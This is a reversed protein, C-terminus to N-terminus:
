ERERGNSLALRILRRITGMISRDVENPTRIEDQESPPTYDEPDFGSTSSSGSARSPEGWSLDDSRDAAGARLRRLLWQAASLGGFLLILWAILPLAEYVEIATRVLDEYPVDQQLPVM